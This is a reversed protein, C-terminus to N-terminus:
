TRHNGGEAMGVLVNKAADAGIEGKLAGVIDQDQRIVTEWCEGCAGHYSAKKGLRRRHSHGRADCMQAAKRSLPHLVTFHDPEWQMNVTSKYGKKRRDKKRSDRVAAVAAKVTVGGEEGKWRKIVRKRSGEDLELLTMYTNVTADTLGQSQAIQKQTMGFQDRLEGYGIAREVPNLNVRHTNEILGVLLSHQKPDMEDISEWIRCDAEELDTGLRMAVWRRYGAEIYYHGDPKDGAPRVLLSQLLGVEIISAALETVDGAESRPNNPNPHLHDLRIKQSRLEKPPEMKKTKVM